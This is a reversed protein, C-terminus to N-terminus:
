VKVFDYNGLIKFNKDINSFQEQVGRGYNGSSLTPASINKLKTDM